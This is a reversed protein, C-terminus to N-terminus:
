TGMTMPWCKPTEQNKPEKSPLIIKGKKGLSDSSNTSRGRSCQQERRNGKVGSHDFTSIIAESFVRLELCIGKQM